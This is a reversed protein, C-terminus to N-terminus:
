ASVSPLLPPDPLLVTGHALRRYTRVVGVVPVGEHDDVFTTVAGAPTGIRLGASADGTVVHQVVTGPTAAALTLAVSGTVPVAPHFRGMSLMRVTLDEGEDGAASVMALKPV